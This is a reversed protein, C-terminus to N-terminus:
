DSRLAQTPNSRAVKWTQLAVTVMALLAILAMPLWLPWARFEAQFPFNALWQGNLWLMIPIALLSALGLLRIFERNFLHFIQVGSAGLVKRIGVEKTRQTILYAALGLLGLCGILVALLAFAAIFEGFQQEARYLSAFRDDLFSYDFPNGPFATQYEQELQALLSKMGALTYSAEHFQIAFRSGGPHYQFTIAPVTSKMSNHHYDAVVGVIEVPEASFNAWIRQGIAESPDNYGMERAARQNLIMRSYDAEPKPLYGEGALLPLNFHEFYRHDVLAVQVPQGGEREVNEIPFIRNGFNFGMGPMSGARTLSQVGPLALVQEEFTRLREEQGETTIRPADVVLNNEIDIGLPAHRLYNVQRFITLTVGLLVVGATFQVVVLGRRLGIGQKGQKWNGKLAKAPRFGSLLFAPYAGSCLTGMTWLGLLIAWNSLPMDWLNPLFPLAVWNEITPALSQVLTLALLTALGNLLAAELLFQGILQWRSSGMTKRVGVERAREMARATALNIYNIWALGLIVLGIWQLISVVEPSGSVGLHSAQSYLYVEEMPELALELNMPEGALDDIFAQSKATLRAANAQPILQAYTTFAGWGEIHNGANDPHFLRTNTFVHSIPLQTNAPRHFVATVTYDVEGFMDVLRVTRGLPDADGFYKQATAQDLAVSYPGPLPRTSTKAPWPFFHFFNTDAYVYGNQAFAATGGPGEMQVTGSQGFLRCTQSVEPLGQSMAPGLAPYLSASQEGSQTNQALVRYAHEPATADYTTEFQVYSGIMFAGAMGVALGMINILSYQRHNRLVRYALLLNKRIMGKPNQLRGGM